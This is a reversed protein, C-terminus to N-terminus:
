TRLGQAVHIKQFDSGDEERCTEESDEFLSEFKLPSGVEAIISYLTDTCHVHLYKKYWVRAM